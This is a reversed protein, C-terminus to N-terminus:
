VRWRFVPTHIPADWLSLLDDDLEVLTLAAGGQDLSTLTDGVHCRAMDVGAHDLAAAVEGFLLHLENWPTAGMGSLMALVPQGPTPRLDALVHEVMTAALDRAAPLPARQQGAEGSLGIGLEVEGPPLDFIPRDRHPPTCSSVGIGYSGARDAVRQTADRVAELDRGEAAAAGAVRCAVVTAGLGRRGPGDADSSLAVDDGVIVTRVTTGQEDAALEAAMEFNMIEGPYNTVVQVVGSGHDALAATDLIRDPVPSGFVAGVCAADLGGPGVLGSHLPECGSGGGSIVGVQGAPAPRRRSIVRQDVDVALLDRHAVALGRLYDSVFADAANKLKSM